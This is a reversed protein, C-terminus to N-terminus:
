KGGLELGRNKEREWQVNRVEYEAFHINRFLSLLAGIAFEAVAVRNGEPSNICVINKEKAYETDVIEMGSGMRGIFKLKKGKDILAKDALTKSNIVIGEFDHIIELIGQQDIDPRYDIEFASGEMERFFSLHIHDTVLITM